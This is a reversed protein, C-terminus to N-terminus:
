RKFWRDITEIARQKEANSCDRQTQAETARESTSMRKERMYARLVYLLFTITTLAAVILFLRDRLGPPALHAVLWAMTLVSVLAVLTRSSRFRLM